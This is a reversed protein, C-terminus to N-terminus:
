EKDRTGWFCLLVAYAILPGLGVSAFLWPRITPDSPWDPRDNAFRHTAECISVYLRLPWFVIRSQGLFFVSLGGLGGFIRGAVSFSSWFALCSPNLTRSM